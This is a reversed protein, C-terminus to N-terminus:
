ELIEKLQPELSPIIKVAEEVKKKALEEDGMIKAIQVVILHSRSMRPELEVAKEALSLAAQFDGQYIKTQALAWYGQQNTPSLEIARKLIEEAPLLKSSDILAYVNYVQGLRLLSRFEWPAEKVSKELENSVFDLESKLETLPVEKGQERLSEVIELTRQGFFDRIQYKGLPSTELAKKYFFLREESAPKQSIARIVYYDTQFPKIVFKSFSLGFSILVLVVILWLFKPPPWKSQLHSSLHASPSSFSGIMGLVLLFMLYSNIMDFVTLNQVTYSILIVSFISVTWFNIVKQFYKRWLIYFASLFIGLYSLFGLIGTTVLTDFIINHAKDFWIDSGCRPTGLCPNYYKTFVFDFNEPGWGLLPREQFGQWATKWVIRRDTSIAKEFLTRSLSEPQFILITFIITAIISSILFFIGLFKLFPKPPTFVLYLFFLFVLGGGFALTAARAGSLFLASIIIILAFTSYIKLGIKSRILLWIALFINFLLYVGMFSSNGITAGGRSSQALVDSGLKPFLSLLGVLIAVFVSVSFIKVWDQSRKFVSSIALFFALLHFWMLTGTMREPKSWFSRSIDTGLLTSLILIAMFIILALTLINLRPRFQPSYIILILWAAFIIEALGMFYLSKPGVFPFFFKANFILPTFLVLYTGWRIITLCISSIGREPQIEPSKEEVKERLRRERKERSRKGM